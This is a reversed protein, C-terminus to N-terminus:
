PWEHLVSRDPEQAVQRAEFEKRYRGPTLGVNRNFFRTFQPASSFGLSAAIQQISLSSGELQLRAELTTRRDILDKPGLDRARRCIDGLRDRSMGLQVAYDGVTWRERFHVEILDCFRAFARHSPPTAGSASMSSQRARYVEILIIRLYADAVAAGGPRDSGLEDHLGEFASQLRGRTEADAALSTTLDLATANRLERAEPLHGIGGSLAPAGLLVYSGTAGAAFTARAEPSWPRWAFIPGPLPTEEGSITASGSLLVFGLWAPAPVSEARGVLRPRLAGELLGTRIVNRAARQRFM